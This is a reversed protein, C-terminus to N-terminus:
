QRFVWQEQAQERQEMVSGGLHEREPEIMSVEWPHFRAEDALLLQTGIAREGDEIVECKM